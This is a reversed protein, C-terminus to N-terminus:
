ADLAFYFIERVWQVRLGCGVAMVLFLGTRRLWDLVPEWSNSKPICANFRSSCVITLRRNFGAGNDHVYCIIERRLWKCRFEVYTAATKEHYPCPMDYTYKWANRLLNELSVRMKLVSKNLAARWNLDFDCALWCHDWQTLVQCCAPSVPCTDKSPQVSFSVAHVKM